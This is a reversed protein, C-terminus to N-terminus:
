AGPKGGAFGALSSQRGRKANGGGAATRNIRTRAVPSLGFEAIYGAMQNLADKAVVIMPNRCPSGNRAKVLLGLEQIRKEAQQWRSYLLCYASLAAMDAEALIGLGDLIPVIRRWEADALPDASVTPPKPPCKVPPQPEETNIPRKGRNGELIRISSPKPPRGRPRGM